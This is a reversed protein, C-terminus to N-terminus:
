RHGDGNADGAASVSTGLNSGDSTDTNYIVFGQEATLDSMAIPGTLGGLRGYVM